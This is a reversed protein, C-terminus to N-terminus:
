TDSFEGKFHEQQVKEITNIKDIEEKCAWQSSNIPNDKM